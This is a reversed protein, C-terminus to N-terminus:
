IAFRPSYIVSVTPTRALKNENENYLSLLIEDCRVMIHNDGPDLTVPIAGEMGLYGALNGSSDLRDVAPRTPDTRASENLALAPLFERRISHIRYFSNNAVSHYAQEQYSKGAVADFELIVDQPSSTLAVTRSVVDVSDTINRIRVSGDHADPGKLSVSFTVRYRGAVLAAGANPPTGTNNTNQLLYMADGTVSGATGGAPNTVPTVLDSGLWSATSGGPVVITGQQEAPVLWLLDLDLNQATGSAQRTWVELALGSLAVTEPIFIRGLNLEVYGFAAPTGNAATNHSVEDNVYAPPDATSPGWRLQIRYDRAAAAKCRIWVDWSGRLSDM